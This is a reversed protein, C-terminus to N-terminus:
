SLDRGTLEGNTIIDPRPVERQALDWKLGTVPGKKNKKKGRLNRKIKMETIRESLLL